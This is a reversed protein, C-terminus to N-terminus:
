KTTIGVVEPGPDGPAVHGTRFRSTWLQRAAAIVMDVTVDKMCQQHGLPCTRQQCPGCEVNVRVIREMSYNTATWDPHTPGFVTVVPVGFAKAIHRPGADNAILLDSRRILAKLENLSLLPDLLLEPKHKMASAIAKAIPEEGPGCTICVSAAFEDMLRDATEAFRQPAWCKSAGFKAGPSLVVMPGRAQTSQRGLRSAIAFESEPTTFLQLRDGPPPCGLAQVLQAYYDVLPLPTFASPRGPIRSGLRVPESTKLSPLSQLSLTEKGRRNPVGIRNTLLWGRGDRDFGIRRRAGSLRVLFASRFSNSLLLACEFLQGRLEAILVRYESHFITRKRRPPLAICNDMWPGGQALDLLNAEMLFTIRSQPFRDRIAGLAPTAMVFDGVWTPLVILISAPDPSGPPYFPVM